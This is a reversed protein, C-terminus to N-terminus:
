LEGVYASEIRNGCNDCTLEGDEWNVDIGAVQWGDRDLHITSQAILEFNDTACTKCLCGGDSCVAFLPYGGPWAYPQRIFNKVKEITSDPQTKM